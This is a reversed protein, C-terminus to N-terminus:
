FRIELYSRGRAVPLAGVPSQVAASKAVVAATVISFLIRAISINMFTSGFCRCLGV